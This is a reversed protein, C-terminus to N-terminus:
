RQKLTQWLYTIGGTSALILSSVRVFVAVLIVIEQSVGIMGLLGVQSIETIGLGNISVPLMALITSLSGAYMIFGWDPASRAALYFIVWAFTNIIVSLMSIACSIAILRKEQQSLLNVVRDIKELIGTLFGLRKSSSKTIRAIPKWLLFGFILGAFIVGEIWLLVPSAALKSLYICALAFHLGLLMLLGYFRDLFIASFIRDGKQPHRSNVTVYRYADGGITSPLFVSLFSSILYIRFLTAFGEGIGYGSLLRQWKWSSLAMNAFYLFPVLILWRLEIKGLLEFLKKYDLWSFLIALLTVSVVVKALTKWKSNRPAPKTM